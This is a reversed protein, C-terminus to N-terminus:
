VELTFCYSFFSGILAADSGLLALIENVANPFASIASSGEKFLM